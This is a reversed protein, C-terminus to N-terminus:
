DLIMSNFKNFKEQALNKTFMDSLNEDTEKYDVYIEKDQIQEKIWDYKLKMHKTRHKVMSRKALAIAPQNDMWILTPSDTELLGLETLIKRLWVIESGGENVAIFEAECSSRAINPQVKSKWSIACGNYLCIYGTRSKSNEETNWTSDTYGILKDKINHFKNDSLKLLKNIKNETNHKGQNKKPNFELSKTKTGNLYRLVRIGAKWHAEQPCDLVRSLQSVITCVDPRTLTAYILSGILSRYPKDTPPSKMDKEINVSTTAPLKEKKSNLQGFKEAITEIYLRQNLKLVHNEKDYDIHIGIVYEPIGLDTIKFKSKLDNIVEDAIEKTSSAILLDDVTITMFCYQGNKNRKFFLCPDSKTQTMGISKLHKSLTEHWRLPADKLGYLAKNLLWVEDDECDTGKPPKFYVPRVQDAYLFATKIDAGRLHLNMSVTLGSMLRITSALAVPAYTETYDVGYRGQFGRAVIRSKYRAIKGTSTPKVKYVWKGSIINTGKPLDSIKVKTYVKNEKISDNEEKMSKLWMSKDCTQIADDHDKPTYVSTYATEGHLTAAYVEYESNCNILELMQSYWRKPKTYDQKTTSRRSRRPEPPERTAAPPEDEDTTHSEFGPPVSPGPSTDPKPHEHNTQNNIVQVQTNDSTEPTIPDDSSEITTTQDAFTVTKHEHQRSETPQESGVHSKTRIITNDECRQSEEKPESNDVPTSHLDDILTNVDPIKGTTVKFDMFTVDPTIVIKKISPVYIRYAKTGNPDDYGVMIGKMVQAGIKKKPTKKKPYMATCAQGFPQMRKYDPLTGYRAEYPSINDPNSYCPRRNKTFTCYNLAEGWFSLPLGSDQLVTRIDGMIDKICKEATGNQQSVGSASTEHIAGVEELLKDLGYNLYEGGQDSRVVETKNKLERKMIYRLRDVTETISRLAATFTWNTHKCVAVNVIRRGGKTRVPQAATNDCHLHTGFGTPKRKAKEDHSARTPKGLGCSECKQFLTVDHPHLGMLPVTSLIQRIKNISAHGLNRHLRQIKERKLQNVLTLDNVDASVRKPLRDIRYWGNKDKPGLITKTNNTSVHTANKSGLIIHGGYQDLLERSSILPRSASTVLLVNHILGGTINKLTGSKNINTIGTVGRLKGHNRCIINILDNIYPTICHSAGTDLIPRKDKDKGNSDYEINNIEPQANRGIPDPPKKYLNLGCHYCMLNPKSKENWIVTETSNCLKCHHGKNKNSVKQNDNYDKPPFHKYNNNNQLGDLKWRRKKKHQKSLQKLKKMMTRRQKRNLGKQNFSTKWTKSVKTPINTISKIGWILTKLDFTSMVHGFMSSYFVDDSYSSDSNFFVKFISYFFVCLYICSQTNINCDTDDDVSCDEDSTETSDTNVGDMIMADEVEDVFNLNQFPRHDRKNIRRRKRKQRKQHRLRKQRQRRRRYHKVSGPDHEFTHKRKTCKSVKSATAMVSNKVTTKKDNTDATATVSNNDATTTKIPDATTTTTTISDATATPTTPTASETDPNNAITAQLRAIYNISDHAAPSRTFEEAGPTQVDRVPNTLTEPPPTGPVARLDEDTSSTVTSDSWGFLPQVDTDFPNEDDGDYEVEFNVAECFVFDEPGPTPADLLEANNNDSTAPAPAAVSLEANNNDSTTTKTHSFMCKDGWKCKGDKAFNRCIGRKDRALQVMWQPHVYKCKAGFRCKGTKCFHACIEKGADADGIDADAGNVDSLGLQKSTLGHLHKLHVGRVNENNLLYAHTQALSYRGIECSRLEDKYLSVRTLGERYTDLIEEDNRVLPTPKAASMEKVLGLLRQHYRSLGEPPPGVKYRFQEFIRKLTKTTSQTSTRHSLLLHELQARGAGKTDIIYQPANVLTAVVIAYITSEAELWKQLEAKLHKAQEPAFDKSNKVQVYFSYAVDEPKAKLEEDTPVHDQLRGM